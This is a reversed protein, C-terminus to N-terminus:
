LPASHSFLAALDDKRECVDVVQILHFAEMISKVFSVNPGENHSLILAHPCAQQVSMSGEEQLCLSSTPAPVGCKAVKKRRRELRAESARRAYPFGRKRQQCSLVPIRAPCSSSLSLLSLM